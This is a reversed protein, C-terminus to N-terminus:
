ITTKPVRRKGFTGFTIILMIIFIFVMLPIFVFGLDIEQYIMYSTYLNGIIAALGYSLYMMGYNKVFNNAGFLDKTIAPMLSLWGGVTAWSIAMSIVFMFEERVGVFLYYGCVVLTMICLTIVSTKLKFRDYIYGFLPRAFGNSISFVIIWLSATEITLSFDHIAIFSTLGIMSLGFMIGVIFIVFFLWFVKGTILPYKETRVIYLNKINTKYLLVCALLVLIIGSSIGFFMLTDHLGFDNLSVQLLPSTIVPSLGFGALTLGVVLGQREKFLNQVIRVPIGYLIGVGAGILVGYSLSFTIYNYSISAFLFGCTVLAIGSFLWIVFSKPKIWRGSLMVLVAFVALSTLYPISSQVQNLTLENELYVRLVSYAYVTGLVLEVLLGSLLIILKHKLSLKQMSM